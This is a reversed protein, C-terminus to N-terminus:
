NCTKALCVGTNGSNVGNACANGSDNYVCVCSGGITSNYGFCSYVAIPPGGGPLNNPVQTMCPSNNVTGCNATCVPFQNPASGTLNPHLGSQCQNGNSCAPLGETGCLVCKGSNVDFGGSYCIPTCPQQNPSCTNPCAVQGISGCYGSLGCSPGWPISTQAAAPNLTTQDVAFVSVNQLSGTTCGTYSYQWTYVFSGGPCTAQGIIVPFPLGFLSLQACATGPPASAPPPTFGSGTIRLKQGPLSEVKISATGNSCGSLVVALALLPLAFLYRM